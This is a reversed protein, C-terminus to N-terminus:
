NLTLKGHRQALLNGVAYSLLEEKTAQNDSRVLQNQTYELVREATAYFDSRRRETGWIFNLLQGIGMTTLGEKYGSARVMEKQYTSIMRDLVNSGEGVFEGNFFYGGPNQQVLIPNVKTGGTTLNVTRELPLVNSREEVIRALGQTPAM